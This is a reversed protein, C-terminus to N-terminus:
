KDMDPDSTTLLETYYYNGYVDTLEYRFVFDYDDPMKGCGVTIGDKKVTITNGRWTIGNDNGEYDTVWFFFDLTDGEKLAKLNRISAGEETEMEDEIWYGCERAFVEGEQPAVFEVRIAIVDKDNLLAPVYGYEALSGDALLVIDQYFFPVINDEFTIWARDYGAVIYDKNLNEQDPNQHCLDVGMEMLGDGTDFWVDLLEDTIKHRQDPTIDIVATKDPLM